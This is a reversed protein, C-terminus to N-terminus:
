GAISAGELSAELHKMNMYRKSGWQTGAVHRLRACVLMLASNGDPFCGVVRTRRRIERNLREIVNPDSNEGTKAFELAKDQETTDMNTYLVNYDEDLILYECYSPIAVKTIDPAAAIIPSIEQVSHEANNLFLEELNESHQMKGEYGLRGNAIIGIDDAILQVESLIHSSLIVTIGRQPFSRILNVTEDLQQQETRYKVSLMSYNEEDLLGKVRDEYMKAFLSNLEQRRKQAKKLEKEARANESQRQKESGQLLRELIADENEKVAMLWYQLRGLVFAYLIKYPTYHLTCFNRGYAAYQTCRYFRGKDKTNASGLTWGCEGCRILGAFIQPEDDKRSRRRSNVHTQVLDWLDQTVIPEHTNEVVFWEDESILHENGDITRALGILKGTLQDQMEAIGAQKGCVGSNGTCGKCGATQECQFCFMKQEM